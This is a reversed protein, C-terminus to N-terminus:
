SNVIVIYIHIYSLHDFLETFKNRVKVNEFDSDIENFHYLKSMYMMGSLLTVLRGRRTYTM